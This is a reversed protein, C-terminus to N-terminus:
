LERIGYVYSRVILIGSDLHLEVSRAHRGGVEEGVLEIKAKELQKRVEAINREGIGAVPTDTSFMTAGGVVKAQLRRAPSGGQILSTVLIPVACQAFGLLKSGKAGDSSCPLMVHVLGGRLTFPDWLAVAVCSGLASTVLVLPPSGVAMEAIGIEVIDASRLDSRGRKGDSETV